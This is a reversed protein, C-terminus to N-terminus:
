PNLTINLTVTSGAIITVPIPDTEGHDPHSAVVMQPGEPVDQITYKGGKNTTVGPGSTVQVLVGSLKAGSSSLVTGKLAGTGGGVPVTKLSVNLTSTASDMVTTSPSASDYGSASFTVTRTGTPVDALIYSGDSATTNSQGSDAEVNAGAVLAGSGADTVIGAISGTAEPPPPAGCLFNASAQTDFNMSAKNATDICFQWTSGNKVAPTEVVLQGAADSLGNVTGNWDGSFTGSLSVGNVPSGGEDEVAITAVGRNRPGKVPETIVNINAIHFAGTAVAETIFSWV